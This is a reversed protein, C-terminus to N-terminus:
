TARSRAIGGGSPRRPSAAQPHASFCHLIVEVGDAEDALLEMSQAVADREPGEGARMHIVLPLASERAISIQSRFARLQDERPAGDRFFDLGTEGIARVADHKALERIAEAAREDYGAASNPHRGVCAFVGEIREAIAM